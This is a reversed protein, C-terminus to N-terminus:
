RASDFPLDDLSAANRGRAMVQLCVKEAPTWADMIEQVTRPVEVNAGQAAMPLCALVVALVLRKM